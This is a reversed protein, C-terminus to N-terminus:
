FSCCAQGSLHAALTLCLIAIKSRSLHAHDGRGCWFHAPSPIGQSHLLIISYDHWLELGYSSYKWHKFNFIRFIRSISVKTLDQWLHELIGSQSVHHRLPAYSCKYYLRLWSEILSFPHFKFSNYLKHTGPKSKTLGQSEISQILWTLQMKSIYPWANKHNRHNSPIHLM